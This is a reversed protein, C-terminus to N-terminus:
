EKEDVKNENTDELGNDLYRWAKEHEHISWNMHSHKINELLEQYADMKFSSVEPNWFLIITSKKKM